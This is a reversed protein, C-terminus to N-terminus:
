KKLMALVAHRGDVEQEGKLFQSHSFLTPDTTTDRGDITIHNETIGASLLQELSVDHLGRDNFDYMPYALKGAAPSLQVSVDAPRSGFMQEMYEIMRVGGRQVLNHRGLHAVGLVNQIPDYLVAGVCDAIPLLLAVNSDETFLADSVLTPPRVIGEGGDVTSVTYYRCYDDGEYVLHVLIASDPSIDLKALFHQRNADRELASVGKSMSGDSDTSCVYLLNSPLM